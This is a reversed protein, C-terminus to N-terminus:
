VTTIVASSLGGVIQGSNYLHWKIRPRVERPECFARSVETTDKGARLVAVAMAVM